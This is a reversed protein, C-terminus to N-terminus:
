GGSNPPTPWLPFFRTAAFAITDYVEILGYLFDYDRKAKAHTAM